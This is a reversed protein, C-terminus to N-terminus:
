GASRSSADPWSAASPTWVAGASPTGWTRGGPLRRGPERSPTRSTRRPTCRTPASWTAPPPRRVEFTRRDTRAADIPADTRTTTMPHGGGPDDGVRRHPGAPGPHHRRGERRDHHQRRQHQRPGGAADGLRGRGAPRGVGRVRLEPDVVSGEGSGMACTGVPHYLTQSWEAIHKELALDDLTDSEHLYPTGVFRAVPGTRVTEIATRCGAKMAELDVREAFYAPDIVAKWRPDAGRLRLSGRSAVEVLTPGVTLLRELPEKFGNDYFGSGAVHFQMDPGELGPRTDVFGGGEGVNSSLPGRGTAQWQVLRRVNNHDVALDHTDHTRWLLPTVPHDHLNAGVGALDVVVDVGVERLHDAPGIGSLMLLQPSNIAGGSLLM